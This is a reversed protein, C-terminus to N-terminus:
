LAGNLGLRLLDTLARDLTSVAVATEVRSRISDRLRASHWKSPLAPDGLDLDYEAKGRARLVALAAAATEGTEALMPEQLRLL